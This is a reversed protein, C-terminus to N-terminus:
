LGSGLGMGWATSKQRQERGKRRGRRPRRPPYVSDDVGAGSGRTEDVGNGPIDLRGPIEVRGRNGRDGRGQVEGDTYGRVPRGKRVKTVESCPRAILDRASIENNPIARRLGWVGRVPERRRNIIVKGFVYPVKSTKDCRADTKPQHTPQNRDDDQLPVLRSRGLYTTMPIASWTTVNVMMAELVVQSVCLQRHTISPEAM